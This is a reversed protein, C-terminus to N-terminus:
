SGGAETYERVLEKFSLSAEAVQATRHQLLLEDQMFRVMLLPCCLQVDTVAVARYLPTALNLTETGDGNDEASTIGRTVRDGTGTYIILREYGQCFEAFGSDAVVLTTDYADADAALTFKRAPVPLWFRRLRGLRAGFFLVLDYVEEADMGTVAYRVEQALLDNVEQVTVRSTSLEQLTRGLYLQRTPNTRWDFGISWITTTGLLDQLDDAM